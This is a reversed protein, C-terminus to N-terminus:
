LEVVDSQCSDPYISTKEGSSRSLRRVMLYSSEILEPPSTGPPKPMVLPLFATYKESTDGNSGFVSGFCM